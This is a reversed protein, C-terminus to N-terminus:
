IEDLAADVMEPTIPVAGPRTRFRPFLDDDALADPRPALGRRALDSLVAGFSRNQAQALSRVAAMVDDEIDVTTRM